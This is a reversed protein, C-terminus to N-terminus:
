NLCAESQGNIHNIIEGITCIKKDNEMLYDMLLASAVASQSHIDHFLIVGSKKPTLAMQKKARAFISKPDKDKWDLTDINWFLHVLKNQAIVKRTLSSRTGAGYPLRFYELKVDILKELDKKAKTVQYDLRTQSVGALSKHTYSHLAIEMGADKVYEAASQYKIAEATLMFFTAKLGRSYLDDVVTKTRQGRPGDDFTFAWTNAPFTNGTINGAGNVSPYIVDATQNLSKIKNQIKQFKQSQKNITATVENFNLFSPVELISASKHSHHHDSHDEMNELYDRGSILKAYTKTLMMSETNNFMVRHNLERDFEQMLEDVYINAYHAKDQMSMAFSSLSPVTLLSCLLKKM